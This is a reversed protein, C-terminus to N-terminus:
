NNYKDLRVIKNSNRQGSIIKVETVRLSFKEALLRIIETNASGKHPLSKVKVLYYGGNEVYEINSDNKGTKVKIAINM